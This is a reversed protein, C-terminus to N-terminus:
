FKVKPAEREEVRNLEFYPVLVFGFMGAVLNSPFSRVSINYNRAAGNYYRRSLQIENELASLEQQLGLFNENAKLDPYNEAVAFLTKLAGTLGKEAEVKGDISTAAMSAARMKTVNELVDKEHFSYQKVVAVLNPILDYRRKLQVDIGSWGEDTLSKLQVLRNYSTIAWLAIVVIFGLVILASLSLFNM